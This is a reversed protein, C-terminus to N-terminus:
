KAGLYLLFDRITHLEAIKEIPISVGFEEEVESVINIQAVSDWAEIEGAASDLKLLEPDVGLAAAVVTILKQEM